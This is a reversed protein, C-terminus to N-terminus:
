EVKATGSAVTVIPLVPVPASDFTYERSDADIGARGPKAVGAFAFKTYYNSFKRYNLRATLTIPGAADRPVVLRFHVTDAAGPPILRVYLVSRTQWANRKNIPNGDGDLQYSKYFHAGKEGPGKGGDGGRGSWPLIEGAADRAQFELWVDYA